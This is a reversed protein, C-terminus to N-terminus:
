QEEAEDADFGYGNPYASQAQEIAHAYDDVYCDFAIMEDSDAGEYLWVTWRTLTNSEDDGYMEDLDAALADPDVDFQWSTCDMYGDASYRGFYGHVVEITQITGECYTQLDFCAGNADESFEDDLPICQHELLSAPISYVDDPLYETGNDTEIRWGYQPGYIYPQMFSM